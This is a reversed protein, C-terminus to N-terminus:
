ADEQRHEREDGHTHRAEHDVVHERDGRRLALALVRQQARDARLARLHRPRHQDLRHHDADDTRQKPSTAPIPTDMASLANRPSSPTSKGDVASCSSGRVITSVSTTPVSTVTSDATMGASRVPRTEGNAAIRSDRDLVDSAAALPDEATRDDGADSRTATAAESAPALETRSPSPTNRIQVPTNIRPGTSASTAALTM